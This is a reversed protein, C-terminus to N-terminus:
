VVGLSPARTLSQHWARHWGGTRRSTGLWGVAAQLTKALGGHPHWKSESADLRLDARYPSRGTHVPLM